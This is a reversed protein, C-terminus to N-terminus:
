QRVCALAEGTHGACVCFIQYFAHFGTIAFHQFMNSTISIYILVLYYSLGEAKTTRENHNSSLSQFRSDPRCSTLKVFLARNPPCVFYRKGRFVGDKVGLDEEQLNFMIPTADMHIWFSSSFFFFDIFFRAGPKHNM